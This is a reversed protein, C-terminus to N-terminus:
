AEPSWHEVMAKQEPTEPSQAWASSSSSSFRRALEELARLGPFGHEALYCGAVTGTRGIGGFCHLYVKRGAAIESQLYRQIQRMQAVAPVSFDEIAFRCYVTSQPLRSDYHTLEDEETLDIFSNIGAAGLNELFLAPHRAGPNYPYPGALIQNEVLWYCKKMEEAIM